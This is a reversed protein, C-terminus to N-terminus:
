SNPVNTNVYHKLTHRSNTLKATLKAPHAATVSELLIRDVAYLQAARTYKQDCKSANRIDAMHTAHRAYRM